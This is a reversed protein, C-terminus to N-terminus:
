SVKGYFKIIEKAKQLSQLEKVSLNVVEKNKLSEITQKAKQIREQEKKRDDETQFERFVIMLKQEKYAGGQMTLRPLVMIVGTKTAIVGYERLLNFTESLTKTSIRLETAIERNTAIVVNDSNKNKLLYSLVKYKKGGLKNMLGCLTSIYAIEFDERPQYQIVENLELKEGTESDILTRKKLTKITKM